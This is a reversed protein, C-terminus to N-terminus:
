RRTLFGIGCGLCWGIAIFITVYLLLGFGLDDVSQITAGVVMLPAIIIIIGVIWSLIAGNQSLNHTLFLGLAFLVIVFVITIVFM